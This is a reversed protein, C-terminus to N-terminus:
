ELKEVKVYTITSKNDYSKKGLTAGKKANKITQYLSITSTQRLSLEGELEARDGKEVAVFFSKFSVAFEEEMIELQSSEVGSQLAVINIKYRGAMLTIRGNRITVFNKISRVVNFFREIKGSCTQSHRDYGIGELNEDIKPWEDPGTVSAIEHFVYALGNTKLETYKQDSMLIFEKDENFVVEGLCRWSFHPHYYGRLDVREYPRISTIKSEGFATIYLYYARDAKVEEDLMNSEFRTYIGFIKVDRGYVSIVNNDKSSRIVNRDQLVLDISNDRAFDHGTDSCRYGVCSNKDMVIQGLLVQKSNVFYEDKSIDWRDKVINYRYYEEGSKLVNQAEHHGWLLTNYNVTINGGKGLFLWGLRLLRLKQGIRLQQRTMGLNTQSDVYYARRVSSLFYKEEGKENEAKIIQAFLIESFNGYEGVGLAVYENLKDAIEKGVEGLEIPEEEGAYETWKQDLYRRHGVECSWENGANAPVVQKYNVNIKERIHETIGDIDILLEPEITVTNTSQNIRIFAPRLDNDLSKSSIIRNKKYIIKSADLSSGGVNISDAWVTGWRYQTNGMNNGSVVDGKENRGVFDGKLAFHIDNWMKKNIEDDEAIDNLTIEAM